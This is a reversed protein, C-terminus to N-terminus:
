QFTFQRFQPSFRGYLVWHQAQCHPYDRLQEALQNQFHRKSRGPRDELHGDGHRITFWSEDQWTMQPCAIGHGHLTVQVIHREPLHLHQSAFSDHLHGAAKDLSSRDLMWAVAMSVGLALLLWPMPARM